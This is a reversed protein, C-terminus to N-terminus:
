RFLCDVRFDTNLCDIVHLQPHKPGKYWEEYDIHELKNEHKFNVLDTYENEAKHVYNKIQTPNMGLILINKGFSILLRTFTTKM